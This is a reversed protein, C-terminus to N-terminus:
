QELPLVKPSKHKSLLRMLFSYVRTPALGLASLLMYLIPFLTYILWGGGCM